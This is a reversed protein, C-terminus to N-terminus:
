EARARAGADRIEVEHGRRALHYAASLGSPGAGIVLVRKGTRQPAARDFRGITSSRVTASSASSQTSRSPATSNRATVSAARLPPLLRARPDRPVPQRGHAHAVGARAPGSQRLALWAQINEGAPCGANCPPLLDVYVPRESRVSGGRAHTHRLDPLTTLDPHQETVPDKALRAPSGGCVNRADSAARM